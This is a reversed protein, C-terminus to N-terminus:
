NRIVSEFIKDSLDPFNGECICSHSSCQCEKTRLCLFAATVFLPSNRQRRLQFIMGLDNGRISMLEQNSLATLLKNEFVIDGGSIAIQGPALLGMISLATLSKGSGSEGVVGVIENKSISFSIDSLLCKRDKQITKISLNRVVLLKTNTM